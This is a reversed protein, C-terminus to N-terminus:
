GGEGSTTRLAPGATREEGDRRTVGVRDFHELIPILHKRTVGLVEKLRSAPQHPHEVFSAALAQQAAAIANADALHDHALAVAHGERVLYRAVAVFDPRDRLGPPLEAFRPAALGADALTRLLTSALELHEPGLTPQFGPLGYTAGSARLRDTAVMGALVHEFLQQPEAPLARRLEERTMGPDLPHDPHYGALTAHVQRAIAHARDAPYLRDGAAYVDGPLGNQLRSPPLGSLVPLSSRSIGAPPALAVVAAIRDSDHVVRELLASTDAALRKRKGALPEAVIGGAVTHVPSYSRIVFRDGARAVLPSELRLQTWARQGPGLSDAGFLVCRAMVESTGLHLRVRQRNKLPAADRLVELAVTLISAPQWAPHDVLTTGRELADRPLAVALAIREGAGAWEAPHGHRQLGRVRVPLDGPIARLVSDSRVAGSWITGTVVTGTGRITFVRDIPLRFLDEPSRPPTREAAAGLEDRLQDLGSGTVASVPVLPATAFPTPGLQARVDDCVLGLWDPAVLDTKTVAVVAQRVALLEMIALHENTQPMVGEDAAIVLLVVDIGTAGALMNRVLSEHGPVDVIAYECGPLPLYAFGLDITIGRRKEEPLRDPDHGTLARVLASKGHDIHGATGLVLRRM